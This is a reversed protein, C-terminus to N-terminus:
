AIWTRALEVSVDNLSPVVRHAEDYRHVEGTLAGPIAVTYLGAAVASAVGVTSDEFGLSKGPDAGLLRAATAFPEPHPKGYRVDDISVVVSFHQLLGVRDLHQEIWSRPANSAVALGIGHAVAETILEIAGPRTRANAVGARNLERVRASAASRDVGRNLRRELEGIIDPEVTTGVHPAWWELELDVEHDRFVQRAAEFLPTETDILTGDFDFVFAHLASEITM